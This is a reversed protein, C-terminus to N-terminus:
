LQSAYDEWIPTNKKCVPRAVSLTDDVFDFNSELLNKSYERSEIPHFFYDSNKVPFIDSFIKRVYMFYCYEINSQFSRFIRANM